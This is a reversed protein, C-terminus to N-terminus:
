KRSANDEKNEQIKTERMFDKTPDTVKSNATSADSSVTAAAATAAAKASKKAAHKKKLEKRHEEITLKKSKGKTVLVEDAKKPDETNGTNVEVASASITFMCPILFALILKKM